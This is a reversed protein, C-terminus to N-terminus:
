CLAVLQCPNRFGCALQVGIAALQQHKSLLKALDENSHLGGKSILSVWHSQQEAATGRGVM